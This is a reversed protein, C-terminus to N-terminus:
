LLPQTATLTAGHTWSRGTRDPYGAVGSSYGFNVTPMFPARARELQASAVDIRLAAIRARENRSLALKIAEDMRLGEANAPRATLLTLLALLLGPALRSRARAQRDRQARCSPECAQDM